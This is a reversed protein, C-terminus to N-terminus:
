VFYYLLQTTIDIQKQRRATIGRSNKLALIFKNALPHNTISKGSVFYPFIFILLDLLKKEIKIGLTVTNKELKQM